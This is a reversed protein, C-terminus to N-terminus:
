QIYDLRRKSDMWGDKSVLRAVVTEKCSSTDVLGFDRSDYPHQRNDSLLFFKGETVSFEHEERIPGSAGVAGTMHLHNTLAEWYCHQEVVESENDPHPYSLTREDCARESRFGKGNVFPVGDVLRVTDGAEGVIRGIVYRDPYDPEPCVVLDGM